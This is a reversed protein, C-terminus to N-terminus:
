NYHYYIPTGALFHSTEYAENEGFAYQVRRRSFVVVTGYYYNTYLRQLACYYLVGILLDASWM